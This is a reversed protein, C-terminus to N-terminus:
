SLVFSNRIARTPFDDSRFCRIPLPSIALLLLTGEGLSERSKFDLRRWSVTARVPISPHIKSGRKKRRGSSRPLLRSHFVRLLPFLFFSTGPVWPAPSSPSPSFIPGPLSPLPFVPSAPGSACVRRFFSLSFPLFFSLFLTLFLSSSLSFSPARKVCGVDRM